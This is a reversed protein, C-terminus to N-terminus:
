PRNQNQLQEFYRKILEEYDPAYGAELARILDRRLADLQEAEPLTDPGVRPEAEGTQSERKEDKGREQLSRTADLMRTLIEQQREITRRTTRRRELERVTEEMQEAIKNLDGLAQGRLEPNRAMEKLQRRMADQQGAISRMRDQMSQTLRQGAMDNLMQQIQNNLQQQNGAMEQMQQMMEEMSSGGGGSPNNMSSLLDSLLLALENLEMMASRQHGSAQAPVRESMATTANRMALLGAAAREQLASSMQPIRRALHVLSDTVVRLGDSLDVQNRAFERLRPGDGGSADVLTRLAEERESLRLVDSLANRIGALDMQMQAGQMGTQMQGLQQQLGQLQQQMQQQGQQAPELENGRLQEANEQMQTPLDQEGAEKSLQQMQDSPARGVERMQEALEELREELATMEGASMEQEAALDERPDTSAAEDLEGSEQREQVDSTREQLEEQKEALEQAMAAVEDLGQKVRLEKLLDLSRQMREQFQNEQFDFDDIAEQMRQLDLQQMADRLAEIADQLENSNIEEMVSQFEEFLQLTEESVAGQERLQQSVEAMKETLENVSQELGEQKQDLAELQREDEWDPTPNQRLEDRLEDFQERVESSQELLEELTREVEDEAENVRDLKEALSPVVLRQVRTSAEKYGSVADNDWVAIFYEFVDGPVPTYGGSGVEWDYAIEQTLERTSGIPVPLETFEETVDGFRSEALRYRLALRHFGFDDGVRVLVPVVTDEEIEITENPAVISVSPDGDLVARVRYRIPSDNVQGDHSRLAIHYEGDSMVRFSGSASTATTELTDVRAGSQLVSHIIRAEDVEAGTFRLQLGALTGRLATVDGVGPDLVQRPIGSYPPYDLVVQISEVMPRDVVTVTYWPSVVPGADIRYRLPSRVNTLATGFGGSSDATLAASEIHDEGQAQREVTVEVPLRNGEARVNIALTTGRLIQTDGPTVHLSFADPRTFVLSPSVLRRSADLFPGPAAVLLILIASLPLLLYRALRKPRTFEEVRNFDVPAVSNGLEVLAAGIIEGSSSSHRGDALQLLNVLRDSVDPYKRGVLRAVDERDPRRTVGLHRLLPRIVWWSALGAFTTAAIWAIVTRARSGFWLGAEATALIVWVSALVAVFLVVGALLESLTIRSTARGLRDVVTRIIGQAHESM